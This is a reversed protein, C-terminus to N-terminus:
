HRNADRMWDRWAEFESELRKLRAIEYQLLGVVHNLHIRKFEINLLERQQEPPLAKLIGQGELSDLGGYLRRSTKGQRWMLPAYARNQRRSLTLPLRYSFTTRMVQQLANLADMWQAEQQQVRAIESRIGKIGEFPLGYLGMTVVQQM